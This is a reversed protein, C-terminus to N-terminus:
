LKGLREVAHRAASEKADAKNPMSEGQVQHRRSNSCEVFTIRCFFGRDVTYTEEYKVVKQQELNQFKVKYHGREILAGSHPVCMYLWAGYYSDAYDGM